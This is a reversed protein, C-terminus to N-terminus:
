SHRSKGYRGSAKVIPCMHMTVTSTKMSVRFKRGFCIATIRLVINVAGIATYTRIQLWTHMGKERSVRTLENEM